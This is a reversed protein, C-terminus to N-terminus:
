MSEPVSGRRGLRDAVSPSLWTGFFFGVFWVNLVVAWLWSFGSESLENDRDRFSENVFTKFVLFATNPYSAVYGLQFMTTSSILCMLFVLKPHNLLAEAWM